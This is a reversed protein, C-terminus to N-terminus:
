LIRERPVLETVQAIESGVEQIEKLKRRTLLEDEGKSAEAYAMVLDQLKVVRATLFNVTDGIIAEEEEKLIDELDSDDMDYVLREIENALKEADKAMGHAKFREGAQEAEIYSDLLSDVESLKSEMATITDKINM